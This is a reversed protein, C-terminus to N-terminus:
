SELEIETIFFPEPDFWNWLARQQDPTMQDFHATWWAHIAESTREPEPLNCSKAFDYLWSLPPYYDMTLNDPDSYVIANRFPNEGWDPLKLTERIHAIQTKDNTARLIEWWQVLQEDEWWYDPEAISLKQLHSHLIAIPLSWQVVIRDFIVHSENVYVDVFSPVLNPVAKSIYKEAQIRTQFAAIYPIGLVEIRDYGENYHLLFRYYPKIQVTYVKIKQPNAEFDEMIKPTPPCAYSWRHWLQELFKKM